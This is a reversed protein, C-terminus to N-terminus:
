IVPVEINVLSVSKPHRVYQCTKHFGCWRPACWWDDERAPMFNGSQIIRTAAEVRRMLPQFDDLDRTTEFTKAIPTKNDILYDLALGAPLVGEFRYLALAYMSLQNSEAAVNQNPTKGSTKTDRIFLKGDKERHTVDIAGALEFPFGEIDLVWQRELHTPDNIGPAVVGHHLAALRVAKDVAMAKVKAAGYLVVEEDTEIPGGSKEWEHSLEDRAADMVDSSALLVGTEKKHELNVKVSAHVGSGVMSAVAPAVKEGFAYRREFQIGCKSLTDLSSQHIQKKASM